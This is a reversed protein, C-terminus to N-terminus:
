EDENDAEEDEDEEADDDENSSEDDEKPPEWAEELKLGAGKRYTTGLLQSTTTRYHDLEPDTDAKDPADYLGMGILIEGEEEPEDLAQYSISGESPVTPEAQPAQQYNPPTPPTTVSPTFGNNAFSDWTVSSQETYCPFAETAGPSSSTVYTTTAAAATTTDVYAPTNWSNAPMCQSVQAQSVASFPVSLPSFTSVPSTHSSYVAPTPPFANYGSYLEAETYPTSAPMMYQSINFQPMQHLQMQPQQAQSGPHWSMPRSARRVPEQYMEYAPATNHMQQTLMAQDLAYQRRRAMNNDSMLTRRRQMLAQPSNNASSPKSVRMANAPRYGSSSGRSMRRSEAFAQQKSFEDLIPGTSYFQPAYDPIGVGMLSQMM